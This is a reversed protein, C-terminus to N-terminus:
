TNSDKKQSNWGGPIMEKKDIAGIDHQNNSAERKSSWGDPITEGVTCSWCALNINPTAPRGRVMGDLLFWRQRMWSAKLQALIMNPTVSIWRVKWGVPIIVMEKITDQVPGHDCQTNNAEEQRNWGGPINEKGGHHTWCPWPWIPCQQNGKLKEMEWSYGKAKGHISIKEVDLFFSREGKIVPEPAPSEGNKGKVLVHGSAKVSGAVGMLCTTEEKGAKM